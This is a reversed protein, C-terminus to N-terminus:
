LVREVFRFNNGLKPRMGEGQVVGAAVNLCGLGGQERSGLDKLLVGFGWEM